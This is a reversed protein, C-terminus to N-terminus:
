KVVITGHMGLDAHGPVSCFFVYEGPAPALFSGRGTSSPAAKTVLTAALSPDKWPEASQSKPVSSLTINHEVSGTNKLAIRIAQGANATIADPKFFYDGAEMDLSLPPGANPNLTPRAAVEGQTGGIAERVPELQPPAMLFIMSIVFPLAFVFVGTGFIVAYMRNDFKLHMYYLVVLLGKAVTMMLLLPVRGITEPFLTTIGIEIATFIGLFIFVGVYNPNAKKIREEEAVYDGPDTKTHPIAHGQEM